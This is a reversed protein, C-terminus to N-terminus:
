SGSLPAITIQAPQNSFEFMSIILPDGTSTSRRSVFQVYRMEPAHGRVMALDRATVPTAEPFSRLLERNAQESLAEANEWGGVQVIARVNELRRRISCLRRLSEVDPFREHLVEVSPCRVEHERDRLRVRVRMTGGDGARWPRGTRNAADQVDRLVAGSELEFVCSEEIIERLLDTMQEQTLHGRLEGSEDGNAAVVSGDAQVTVVAAPRRGAADQYALELVVAEADSPLPWHDGTEAALTRRAGGLLGLLVTAMVSTTLRRRGREFPLRYGDAALAPYSTSLAM